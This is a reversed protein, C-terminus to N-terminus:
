DEYPRTFPKLLCGRSLLCLTVWNNCHLAKIGYFSLFMGVIHFAGLSYSVIQFAKLTSWVNLTIKSPNVNVTVLFDIKFFTFPILVWLDDIIPRHLYFYPTFEEEYTNMNARETGSCPELVM